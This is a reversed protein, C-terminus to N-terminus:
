LKQKGKFVIVGKLVEYAVHLVIWLLVLTNIVPVTSIFVASFLDTAEIDDGNKWDSHLAAVSLAVM